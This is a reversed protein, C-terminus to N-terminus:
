NVNRAHIHKLPRFQRTAFFAMDEPLDSGLSSTRLKEVAILLYEPKHKHPYTANSMCMYETYIM